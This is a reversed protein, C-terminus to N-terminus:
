VCRDVIEAEPYLEDAEGVDVVLEEQYQAAETDNSM